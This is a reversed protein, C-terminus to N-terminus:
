YPRWDRPFCFVRPASGAEGPALAASLMLVAERHVAWAVHHPKSKLEADPTILHQSFAIRAPQTVGSGRALLRVAIRRRGAGTSAHETCLGAALHQM